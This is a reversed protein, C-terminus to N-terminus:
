YYGPMTFSGKEKIDKRLKQMFPMEGLAKIKKYFDRGKLSYFDTYFGKGIFNITKDPIGYIDKYREAQKLASPPFFLDNISLGIKYLIENKM